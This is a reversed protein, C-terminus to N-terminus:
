QPVWRYGKSSSVMGKQAVLSTIPLQVVMVGFKIPKTDHTYVVNVVIYFIVLDFCICFFRVFVNIHINEQHFTLLLLSYIVLFLAFSSISTVIEHSINYMKGHLEEVGTSRTNISPRTTLDSIKKNGSSSKIFAPHHLTAAKMAKHSDTQNVTHRQFYLLYYQLGTLCKRHNRLM